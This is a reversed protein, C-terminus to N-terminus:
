AKESPTDGLVPANKAAKRRAAEADKFEGDFISRKIDKGRRVGDHSLRKKSHDTSLKSLVVRMRLLYAENAQLLETKRIHEDV